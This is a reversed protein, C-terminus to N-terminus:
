AASSRSLRLRLLHGDAEVGQNPLADAPPLEILGDVVKGGIPALTRFRIPFVSLAPEQLDNSLDVTLAKILVGPRWLAANGMRGFLVAKLSPLDTGGPSCIGVIERGNGLVYRTGAVLASKPVLDAAEPTLPEMWSSETDDENLTRWLRHREIDEEALASYRRGESTAPPPAELAAKRRHWYNKSYDQESLDEILGYDITARGISGLVILDALDSATEDEDYSFAASDHISYGTLMLHTDRIYNGLIEIHKALEPLPIFLHETNESGREHRHARVRNRDQDIERTAKKIRKILVQKPSSTREDLPVLRALANNISLAAHEAIDCDIWSAQTDAQGEKLFEHASRQRFFNPHRVLKEIIGVLAQRISYLDIVLVDFSDRMIQVVGDNHFRKGFHQRVVKMRESTALLLPYRRQVLAFRWQLDELKSIAEALQTEEDSRGAEKTTMTLQRGKYEAAVDGM